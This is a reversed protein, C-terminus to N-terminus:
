FEDQLLKARLKIAAGAVQVIASYPMTERGLLLGVGVMGDNGVMGIEVTAGCETTCLLSAVAGAPFYMHEPREGYDYIVEGLALTVPIMNPRLRDSTEHPFASILRNQLVLQPRVILKM